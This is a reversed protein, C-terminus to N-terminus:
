SCSWITASKSRNLDRDRRIRKLPHARAGQQQRCGCDWQSLQFRDEEQPPGADARSPLSRARTLSLVGSTQAGHYAENHPVRAFPPSM